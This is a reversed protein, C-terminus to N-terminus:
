VNIITISPLIGITLFDYKNSYKNLIPNIKTKNYKNMWYVEDREKSGGELLIVGSGKKVKNICNQFVFEYVDGNNAIDIHLIDISNDDFEKIKKYFDGYEISVNKYSDFINKLKSKNASNGNFEDFIDFAKISCKDDTHDAFQKLSFGDLIGFEVIIKPKNIFCLLSFIDKYNINEKYSSNM